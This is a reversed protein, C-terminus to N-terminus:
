SKRCAPRPRVSAPNVILITILVDTEPAFPLCAPEPREPREPTEPGLGGRAGMRITSTASPAQATMAAPVTAPSAAVPEGLGAPVAPPAAPVVDASARILTVDGARTREGCARVEAAGEGRGVGAAM